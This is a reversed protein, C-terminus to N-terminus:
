GFLGWGCDGSEQAADDRDEAPVDDRIPATASAARETVALEFAIASVDPGGIQAQTVVRQAFLVRRFRVRPSRAQTYCARRVRGSLRSAASVAYTKTGTGPQAFCANHQGMICSAKMM